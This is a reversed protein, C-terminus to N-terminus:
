ILAVMLSSRRDMVMQSILNSSGKSYLGMLSSCLGKGKKKATRGNEQIPQEM